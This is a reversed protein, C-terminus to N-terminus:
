NKKKPYAYDIMWRVGFKDEFSGYYDGWPQDAMVMEIKGDKSLASFIRDAEKKSDPTISIYVNNGQVLKQGMSELTDTAMLMQGKGIPLGVHM